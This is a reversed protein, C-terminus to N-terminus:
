VSGAAVRRTFSLVAEEISGWTSKDPDLLDHQATVEHYVLPGPLRQLLSRTDQPRVIDDETGQIVLAPARVREVSQHAIRGVQNLQDFVSLPLKLRRLAQQAKPDDLDLNPFFNLVGQRVEDDSFDANKFPYFNRFLPRLLKGLFRQWPTGFQRFPALLVLGALSQSAAVRLSLAAGMSYGVLLLPAHDRRLEALASEVAIVWEKHNREGLTSIEPGFGPLLLGRVTWGAGHLSKALPRLEAPTGPFGHVLLAAPRGGNMFFPQHEVGQFAKLDDM